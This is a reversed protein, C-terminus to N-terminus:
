DIQTVTTKLNLKITPDDATEANAALDGLYTDKVDTQKKTDTTETSEFDWKWSINISDAGQDALNTNAKYKKSYAKIADNVDKEFDAASNYGMGFFEDKGVTIRLPCYYTGDSYKWNSGLDLIKGDTVTPGYSVNVAVEPTGTISTAALTGETGPAVVNVEAEVSDTIGDVTTKAAYTNKFADSVTSVKVGWKAVRASDTGSGETVYKAFTGSVASTSVVAAVALISGARMLRNKSMLLVGKM